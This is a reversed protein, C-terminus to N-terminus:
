YKPAKQVTCHKTFITKKFLSRLCSGRPLTGATGLLSGTITFIANRASIALNTLNRVSPLATHTHPMICM